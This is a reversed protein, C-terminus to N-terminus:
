EKNEALYAALQDFTGKFGAQMSAHSGDYTAREEDTANIPGGRITLTTRGDQESFTVTNLVELPWTPSAPHRTVNGEADSFSVVFVLRGPPDIERYTLTGWMEQGGPARMGYHYVGGPRLDMKSALMTFGRPGWWQAMRKPDTWARWVIDRPSDFTRAIEFVPEKADPTPNSEAVMTEDKEHMERMRGRSLHELPTDLEIL